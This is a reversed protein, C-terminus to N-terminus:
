DWLFIFVYPEMAMVMLIYIYIYINKDEIPIIVENIDMGKYHTHYYPKHFHKDSVIRDYEEIDNIIYTQEFDLNM